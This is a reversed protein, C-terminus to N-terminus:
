RPHFLARLSLVLGGGTRLGAAGGLRDLWFRPVAAGGVFFWSLSLPLGVLMWGGILVLTLASSQAFLAAGTAAVLVFASVLQKLFITFYVGRTMRGSTPFQFLSSSM